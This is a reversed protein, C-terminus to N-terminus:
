LYFVVVLTECAISSTQQKTKRFQECANGNRLAQKWASNVESYYHLISKSGFSVILAQSKHCSNSPSSLFLFFVILHAGSKGEDFRKSPNVKM